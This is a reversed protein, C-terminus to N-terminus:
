LKFLIDDLSSLVANLSQTMRSVTAVQQYLNTVMEEPTDALEIKYKDKFWFSLYNSRNSERMNNDLLFKINKTDETIRNELKTEPTLKSAIIEYLTIQEQMGVQVKLLANSLIVNITNINVAAYKKEVTYIDEASKKDLYDNSYYILIVFVIIISIIIGVLFPYFFSNFLKVKLKM